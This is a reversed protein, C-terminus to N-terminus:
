TLSTGASLPKPYGFLSKTCIFGVVNGYFVEQAPLVGKSNASRLSIGVSPDALLITRRTLVLQCFLWILILSPLPLSLISTALIWAGKLGLVRGSSQHLTLGPCLYEEIIALIGPSLLMQISHLKLQGEDM